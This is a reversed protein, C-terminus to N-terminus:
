RRFVRKPKKKIKKKMLTQQEENNSIDPTLIGLAASLGLNLLNSTHTNEKKDEQNISQNNEFNSEQKNEQKNDTIETQKNVYIGVHSNKNMRKEDFIQQKQMKLQDSINGNKM